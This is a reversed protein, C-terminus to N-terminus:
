HSSNLRHRGIQYRALMLAAIKRDREPVAKLGRRRVERVIREVKQTTQPSHSLDGLSLSRGM